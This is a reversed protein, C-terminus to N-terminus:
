AACPRLQSPFTMAVYSPKVVRREILRFIAQEPYVDGADACWERFHAVVALVPTCKSCARGKVAGVADVPRDDFDDVCHMDVQGTAPEDLRVLRSDQCILHALGTQKFPVQTSTHQARDSSAKLIDDLAM